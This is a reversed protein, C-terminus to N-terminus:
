FGPIGELVAGLRTAQEALHEFKRRETDAAARRQVSIEQWTPERWVWSWIRDGLTDKAAASDAAATKDDVSQRLERARGVLGYRLLWLVPVAVNMPHPGCAVPVLTGIVHKSGSVAKILPLFPDRLRAITGEDDLDVLDAKSFVIVLPMLGQEHYSVARQVHSVLQRVPLRGPAATCLEYADCFVVIGGAERLDAHLQAVQPDSSRERLAGGRYDHWTFPLVDAGASRLILEFRSPHSTAEPYTGNQIAAAAQLLSGRVDPAKARVSFGEVGTEMAEYMLSMYTTKGAQQEGLMVVKM